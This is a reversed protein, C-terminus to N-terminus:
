ATGMLTSATLLFFKTLRPSSTAMRMSNSQPWVYPVHRGQNITESGRQGLRGIRGEALKYKNGSQSIGSSGMYYSPQGKEVWKPVYPLHCPDPTIGIDATPKTTSGGWVNFLRWNGADHQEQASIDAPPQDGNSYNASYKVLWANAYDRDTQSDLYKQSKATFRVVQLFYSGTGPTLNNVLTANAGSPLTVLDGNIWAIVTVEPAAIPASITAKVPGGTPEGGGTPAFPQGNSGNSTVSIDVDEDPTGQAVTVDAIIQTDNSSTVTYSVTGGPSFNLTPPNTGFYQGSFVVGTTTQGSPWVDPQVGSLVPTNNSPQEVTGDVATTGLYIYQYSVYEPGGGPYFPSYDPGSGGEAFNFGDPNSYYSTGSGDTYAFATILYHDSQIQYVNGPADPKQICGEAIQSSINGDCNSNTNATASGSGILNGNEFLYGEIYPEYYLSTQYDVETASYTTIYGNSVDLIASTGVVQQACAPHQAAAFAFCAFAVIWTRWLTM